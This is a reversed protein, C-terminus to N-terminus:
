GLNTIDCIYIVLWYGNALNSEHVGSCGFLLMHHARNASALPDYRVVWEDYTVNLPVATCLYADNQFYIM